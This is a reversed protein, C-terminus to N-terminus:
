RFGYKEERKRFAEQGGELVETVHEKIGMSFLIGTKSTDGKKIFSNELAGNIYEFRFKKNERKEDQGKQNAVIVNESDAGVVINPNHTVIILQRNEKRKRIFQVLDTYISRNDLNDEPQDILIPSNSESLEILLKLVALNAKGPSMNAMEDNGISLEWYDFFEDKFLSAVSDKVDKYKRYTVNGALILDFIEKVEKFHENFNVDPLYNKEQDSLLNFNRLENSKQNFYDSFNNKFRNYYFKISGTLKIDNISNARENLTNIIQEYESYADVYGQLLIEKQTDRNIVLAKIREEINGIQLLKQREQKVETEVSKILDQNQLKERIPSLKNEIENKLITIRSIYSNYNKEGKNKIGKIEKDFVNLRENMDDYLSSFYKTRLVKVSVDIKSNIVKTSNELTQITDEFNKYDNSINNEIELILDNRENLTDYKKLEEDKISNGKLIKIREELISIQNNIGVIDGIDKQNKKLENIHNQIEFYEDIATNRIQDLKQVNQIFENYLQKSKSDQLLIDRIFKGLEKRSNTQINSTLNIIYSQPIYVFQRSRMMDNDSYKYNVGDEWEVIFDFENEESFKYSDIKKQPLEQYVQKYAYRYDITNAIYHLLLSKGSSKGGIITNLDPNLYIRDSIFDPHGVFQVSKIVKDLRKTNPNHRQIKRRLDIEFVIQRLGEFTPNAKIWTFCHGLEKPETNNKDNAFKHADSCHLLRTSVGQQKLSLIGKNAMDSNPSASFVFHVDNIITKKEAPSGDWRFSEWEAKGIAKFYKGKLYTNPEAEEGLLEKIKSIEFNINNFGIELPKYDTKKNSPTSDYIHKGFDILAERTVVGGWTSNYEIYESSLNAKGKLGALFHSEIVDLKLQTEDAFIIHYNIRNLEANGVFEKIRFEIVPLILDINNLGGTKKYELVKKYGDLFLYDNIGLVKIDKPLNELEEFFKKWVEETDGGYKACLSIPTHLHLDWMRWESGRINKQM